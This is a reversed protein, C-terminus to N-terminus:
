GFASLVAEVILLALLSAVVGVALAGVPMGWRWVGIVAKLDKHLIAAAFAKPHAIVMVPLSM